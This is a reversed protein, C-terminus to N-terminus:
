SADEAHTHNREWLDRDHATTFNKAQGCESCLGLWLDPGFIDDLPNTM